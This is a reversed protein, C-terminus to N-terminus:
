EEAPAVEPEPNAAMEAAATNLAEMKAARAAAKKAKKDVYEPGGVVVPIRTGIISNTLLTGPQITIV